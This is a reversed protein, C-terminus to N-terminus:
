LVEHCKGYAYNRLGLYSRSGNKTKFVGKQEHVSFKYLFEGRAAFTPFFEKWHEHSHLENLIGDSTLYLM